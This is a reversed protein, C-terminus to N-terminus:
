QFLRTLSAIAATPANRLLVILTLRYKKEPIATTPNNNPKGFLLRALGRICTVSDGMGPKPQCYSKTAKLLKGEVDVRSKYSTTKEKGDAPVVRSSGGPQASTTLPDVTSVNEAFGPGGGKPLSTGGPAETPSKIKAKLGRRVVIGSVLVNM